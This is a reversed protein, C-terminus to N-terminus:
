LNHDLQDCFTILSTIVFLHFITCLYRLHDEMDGHYQVIHDVHGGAAPPIIKTIDRHWGHADDDHETKTAAMEDGTSM